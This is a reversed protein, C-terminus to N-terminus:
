RRRVGGMLARKEGGAGSQTSDFPHLLGMAWELRNLEEDPLETDGYLKAKRTLTGTIQQLRPHSLLERSSLAPPAHTRRDPGPTSHCHQSHHRPRSSTSTSSSPLQGPRYSKESHARRAKPAETAGYARHTNASRSNGSGPLSPPAASRSSRSSHQRSQTHPESPSSVRPSLSQREPKSEARSYRSSRM